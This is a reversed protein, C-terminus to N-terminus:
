KWSSTGSFDLHAFLIAALATDERAESPGLFPGILTSFIATLSKMYDQSFLDLYGQRCVSPPFFTPTCLTSLLVVFSLDPIILRIFLIPFTCKLVVRSYMNIVM